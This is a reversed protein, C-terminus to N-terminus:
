LALEGAVKVRIRVQNGPMYSLPLEELDVVQLSGPRAGAARADERALNKAQELAAERGVADYSWLRDVEGAVQAISAGVANAVGAHPPVIVESTGAIERNVLVSGGGVLILPVPEASTKMRDVGEEILRHIEDVGRQVLPRPLLRARETDGLDAYGAAVALDTATLVDGGFVLASRTLEYGVSDPGIRTEEGAHVRSGGGLGVALVDPMRFNTRVGGVDVMVSSERPFGNVLMGIDTTTGGIDAVLASDIGSLFAAGRMSNTPGCAFTLVPYKEAYEASMLTGDNQSFYFPADIRLEELARRFSSVVHAALRALSANMIAANERELLGLRGIRSSLTVDADPLAERVIEAAQLLTLEPAVDHEVGDLAEPHGRGTGVRDLAHLGLHVVDDVDDDVM